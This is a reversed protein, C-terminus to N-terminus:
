YKNCFCHHSSSTVILSGPLVKERRVKNFCAAKVLAPRPASASLRLEAKSNMRLACASFAGIPVQGAPEDPLETVTLMATGRVPV